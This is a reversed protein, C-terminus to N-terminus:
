NGPVSQGEKVEKRRQKKREKIGPALDKRFGHENESVQKGSKKALIMEAILSFSRSTMGDGGRNDRM